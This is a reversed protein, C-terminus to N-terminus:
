GVIRLRATSHFIAPSALRFPVTETRYRAAPSSAQRSAMGRLRTGAPWLRRVVGMKWQSFLCEPLM